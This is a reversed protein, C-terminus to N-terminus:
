IKIKKCDMDFSPVLSILTEYLKYSGNKRRLFLKSVYKNM